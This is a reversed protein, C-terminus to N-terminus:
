NPSEKGTQKKATMGACGTGAFASLPFGHQASARIASVAFPVADAGDGRAGHQLGVVFSIMRLHRM